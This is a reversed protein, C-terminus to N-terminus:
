VMLKQYEDDDMIQAPEPTRLEKETFSQKREKVCLRVPSSIEDIQMPLGKKTRDSQCLPSKSAQRKEESKALQDLEVQMDLMM